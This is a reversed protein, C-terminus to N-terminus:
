CDSDVILLNCVRADERADEWECLCRARRGLRSSVAQVRSCCVVCLRPRARVFQSLYCDCLFQMAWDPFLHLHCLGQLVCTVVGLWVREDKRTARKNAARNLPTKGDEGRNPVEVNM